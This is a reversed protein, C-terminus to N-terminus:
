KSVRMNLVFTGSVKVELPTDDTSGLERIKVTFSGSLRAYFGVEDLFKAGDISFIDVDEQSTDSSFTMLEGDVPLTIIFEVGPIDQSWKSWDHERKFVKASRCVENLDTGTALNFAIVAGSSDEEDLVKTGLGFLRGSSSQAREYTILNEFYGEIPDEDPEVRRIGLFTKNFRPDESDVTIYITDPPPNEFLTDDADGCSFDSTGGDLSCGGTLIWFGIIATLIFWNQYKKM